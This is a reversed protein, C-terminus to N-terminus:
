STPTYVKKVVGKMQIDYSQIKLHAGQGTILVRMPEREASKIKLVILQSTIQHTAYSIDAHWSTVCTNEHILFCTQQSDTASNNCTRQKTHIRLFSHLFVFFIVVLM